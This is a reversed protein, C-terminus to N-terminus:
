ALMATRCPLDVHHDHPVLLTPRANNLVTKEVLKQTLVRDAGRPDAQTIVTLDHCNSQRLLATAHDGEAVFADASQCHAAQCEDQFSRVAQQAQRRLLEWASNTFDMLSAASKPADAMDIVGTPALGTVRADFTKALHIATRTRAACASDQALLVLLSRYSM